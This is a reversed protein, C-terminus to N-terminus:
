LKMMSCYVVLAIIFLARVGWPWDFMKSNGAIFCALLYIGVVGTIYLVIGM